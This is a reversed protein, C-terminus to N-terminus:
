SLAGAVNILGDDFARLPSLVFGTGDNNTTFERVYNGRQAGMASADNSGLDGFTYMAIQVTSSTNLGCLRVNASSFPSGSFTISSEARCCMLHHM